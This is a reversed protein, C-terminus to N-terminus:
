YLHNNKARKWMYLFSFNLSVLWVALALPLTEPSPWPELLGPRILIFFLFLFKKKSECIQANWPIVRGKLIMQDSKVKKKQWSKARKTETHIQEWFLSIQTHPLIAGPALLLLLTVKSGQYLAQSGWDGLMWLMVQFLVRITLWSPDCQSTHSVLYGHNGDGVTDSIQPEMESVLSILHHDSFLLRTWSM